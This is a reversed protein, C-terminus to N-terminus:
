LSDCSHIADRIGTLTETWVHHIFLLQSESPPPFSLNPHLFLLLHFSILVFLHWVFLSSPSLSSSFPLLSPPLSFRLICTILPPNRGLFCRFFSSTESRSSSLFHVSCYFCAESAALPLSFCGFGWQLRGRGGRLGGWREAGSGAQPGRCAEAGDAPNGGWVCVCSFLPPPPSLKIFHLQLATWRGAGSSCHLLLGQVCRRVGHVDHGDEAAAARGFM